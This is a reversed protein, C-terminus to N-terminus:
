EEDEKENHPVIEPGIDDFYIEDNKLSAKYIKNGYKQILPPIFIFGAVTIALSTAIFIIKEGAKKKSKM